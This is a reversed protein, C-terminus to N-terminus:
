NNLNAETLDSSSITQTALVLGEALVRVREGIEILVKGVIHNVLYFNLKLCSDPKPLKSLRRYESAFFISIVRHM